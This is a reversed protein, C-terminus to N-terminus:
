STKDRCRGTMCAHVVTGVMSEHTTEQRGAAAAEGNGAPHALGNKEWRKRRRRRRRDMAKTWQGSPRHGGGGDGDFAAEGSKWPGRNYNFYSCM